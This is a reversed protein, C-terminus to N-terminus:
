TRYIEITIKESFILMETESNSATFIRGEQGNYKYALKIIGHIQILTSEDLPGWKQLIGIRIMPLSGTTIRCDSDVNQNDWVSTNATRKNDGKSRLLNTATWDAIGEQQNEFSAVSDEMCVERNVSANCM